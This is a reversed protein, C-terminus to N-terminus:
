FNEKKTYINNIIFEIDIKYTYFHFFIFIFNNTKM